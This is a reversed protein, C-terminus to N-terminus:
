INLKNLVKEHPFDLVDRILKDYINLRYEFDDTDLITYRLECGMDAELTKIASQLNSRKLKDGVLLIDLRSEWNQIFIGSIVLLKLSGASQFKKLIEKNGFPSTYVLMSQLPNIYPFDPDLCWGDKNKEKKNGITIKKRKKLFGIKELSKIEKRIKVSNMQTRTKIEEFDFVGAPHFLFIKMIRVKAASGFLKELTDM